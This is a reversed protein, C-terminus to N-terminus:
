RAPPLQVVRLESLPPPPALGDNDITRRLERLLAQRVALDIGMLIPIRGYGSKLAKAELM